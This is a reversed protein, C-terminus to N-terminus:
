ALLAFSGWLSAEMPRCCSLKPVLLFLLQLANFFIHIKFIKQNM